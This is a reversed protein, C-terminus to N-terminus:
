ECLINNREFLLDFFLNSREESGSLLKVSFFVGFLASIIEAQQM